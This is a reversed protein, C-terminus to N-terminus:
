RITLTFRKTGEEKKSKKNQKKKKKKKRKNINSVNPFTGFKAGCLQGAIKAGRLQWNAM